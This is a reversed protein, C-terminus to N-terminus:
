GYQTSAVILMAYGDMYFTMPSTADILNTASPTLAIKFGGGKSGGGAPNTGLEGSDSYITQVIYKVSPLGVAVGDTYFLRCRQSGDLFGAIFVTGATPTWTAFTGGSSTAPNASIYASSFHSTLSYGTAVNENDTPTGALYPFVNLNGVTLAM